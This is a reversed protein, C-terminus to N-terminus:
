IMTNGELGLYHKFGEFCLKEGVNYTELVEVVPKNDRKRLEEELDM